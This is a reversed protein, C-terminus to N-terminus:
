FKKALFVRPRGKFEFCIRDSLVKLEEVNM